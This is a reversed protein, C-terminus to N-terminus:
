RIRVNGPVGPKKAGYPDSWASAWGGATWKSRVRFTYQGPTLADVNYLVSGDAAAPHDVAVVSGNIEIDHYTIGTQPDCVLDAAMAQAALLLIIFILFLKKM